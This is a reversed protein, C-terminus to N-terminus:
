SSSSSAPQGEADRGGRTAAPRRPKKSAATRSHPAPATAAPAEDTVPAAARRAEIAEKLAPNSLDVNSRRLRYHLEESLAGRTRAAEPAGVLGVIWKPREERTFLNLALEHQAEDGLKLVDPLYVISLTQEFAARLEELTKVELLPGDDPFHSAVEAAWRRRDDELGGYLLVSVRNSVLASEEFPTTM